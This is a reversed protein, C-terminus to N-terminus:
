QVQCAPCVVKIGVNTLAQRLPGSPGVLGTVPSEYFHWVASKVDPAPGAKRESKYRSPAGDKDRREQCLCPPSKSKTDATSEACFSTQPPAAQHFSAGWGVGAGFPPMFVAGSALGPYAGFIPVLGSPVARPGLCTKMRLLANKARRLVYVVLQCM